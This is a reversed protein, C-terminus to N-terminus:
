KPFWGIVKTEDCAFAILQTDRPYNQRYWDAAEKSKEGLVALAKKFPSSWCKKEEVVKGTSDKVPVIVPFDDAELTLGIWADRIEDPALGDPKKIVKFYM